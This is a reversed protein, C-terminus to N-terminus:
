RWASSPFPGPRGRDRRAGGTCPALWTSTPAGCRRWRAGERRRRWRRPLGRFTRATTACPPSSGGSSRQRAPPLISARGFHCEHLRGRLREDAEDLLRVANPTEDGISHARLLLAMSLNLNVSSWSESPSRRSWPEDLCTRLMAESAEPDRALLINAHAASRRRSQVSSSRRAIELVRESQLLANDIEGSLALAVAQTRIAEM